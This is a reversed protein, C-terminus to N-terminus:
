GTAIWYCRDTGQVISSSGGQVGLEVFKFGTTTIETITCTRIYIRYSETSADKFPTVTVSPVNSFPVPFTITRIWDSGVNISDSYGSQILKSNLTDLATKVNSNGYKIDEAKDSMIGVVHADGNTDTYMLADTM